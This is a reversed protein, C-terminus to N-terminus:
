RGLAALQAQFDAPPESEFSLAKGTRPLLNAILEQAEVKDDTRSSEALTIARSLATRDGGVIGEELAAVSPRESM